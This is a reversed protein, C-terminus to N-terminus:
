MGERGPLDFDRFLSLDFNTVGDSRLAHRGSNGFTFPAPAAFADTNFWRAPTPNGLHPDGVQDARMYGNRNRTNAIDGSVNIHYPRGSYLNAIGNIQWNGVVHDFLKSGTSKM